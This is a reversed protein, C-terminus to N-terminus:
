EPASEEGQEKTDSPSDPPTPAAAEKKDAPKEWFDAPKKNLRDFVHDRLGFVTQGGEAMAFVKKTEGEAKQGTLISAIKKGDKDSVTVTVVPQDLGYSSLDTPNEAAIEFGRLERLDAVYQSLAPERLTGEATKDIAWKNDAGRTLTFTDGDQRKVEVKAAQDPAIQAVTKDRFDSATKGIDRLVWDGVLFLPKEQGVRKLYRTKGGNDNTKENGLQITKQANDTGVTLMVELQPPALGFDKPELLPDELFDQARISRVNSLFTRVEADDAKTAVPKELKWGDDAKQLVIESNPARIEVKKVEEDTFALITRDRLDKVEKTLGSRLIQQLLLIKQEGEKQAYLSSGVPTDKGLSVLPLSKGDKLTLKLKVGPANLGYVTLDQPVEDLIRKIEADIISTILNNVTPDDADAEVPQTIRWKGAENKKLTLARDPYTLAIEVIEDREVLVLQSEEKEKQVRPVEVLYIYGGLILLVVIMLLSKRQNM